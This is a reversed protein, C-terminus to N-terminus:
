PAVEEVPHLELVPGPRDGVRGDFALVPLYEVGDHVVPAAEMRAWIEALSLGHLRIVNM